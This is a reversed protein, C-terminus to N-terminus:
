ESTLTVSCISPHHTSIITPMPQHTETNQRLTQGAPSNSPPMMAWAPPAPPKPQPHCLANEKSSCGVVM